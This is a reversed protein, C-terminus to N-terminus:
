LTRSHETDLSLGLPYIFLYIFLVFLNPFASDPDGNGSGTSPMLKGFRVEGMHGTRYTNRSLLSWMVNAGAREM